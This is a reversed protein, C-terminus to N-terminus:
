IHSAAPALPAPRDVVSSAATRQPVPLSPFLLVAPESAVAPAPRLVLPGPPSHPNGTSKSIVTCSLLVQLLEILSSSFSLLVVKPHGSLSGVPTPFHNPFVM